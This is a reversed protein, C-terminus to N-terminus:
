NSVYRYTQTSGDDFLGDGVSAIDPDVIVVAAVQTSVRCGNSLTWVTGSPTFMKYLAAGHRMANLVMTVGRNRLDLRQAAARRSTPTPVM